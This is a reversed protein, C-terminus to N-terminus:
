MNKVIRKGDGSVRLILLKQLNFWFFFVFFLIGFKLEKEDKSFTGNQMSSRQARNLNFLHTHLGSMNQSSSM